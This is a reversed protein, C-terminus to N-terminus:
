GGGMGSVALGGLLVVLATLNILAMQRDIPLADARRGVLTALYEQRWAISGHRWSKRQRPIYNLDAVAQLADQMTAVSDGDIVVPGPRNELAARERALHQVAFTDAQREFRRSVWGFVPLWTVLAVIVVVLQGATASDAAPGIVRALAQRAQHLAQHVPPWGAGASLAANLGVQLAILAAAASVLLWFMHRKRIHALEHAMVAEVQRQGMLDLLADTLLIYRLPAVLGMVAANITGGFTRWILMERVGVRHRRCLDTLQARLPGPPLPVTDWIHRIMVPALLYVCGTGALLLVMQANLDWIRGAPPVWREVGEVWGLLLLLPLGILALQHRVQALLYQPLTWIPHIPLGEDVRRILSAQRLRRDIPYYSAWAALMLGVTPLLFVIEPLLIPAGMLGRIWTLGGLALILVYQALLGLRLTTTVRDLRRVARRGEGRSMLKLTLRCALWYVGGLLLPAGLWLACAQAGSGLHLPAPGFQDNLLLAAMLMLVIIQM